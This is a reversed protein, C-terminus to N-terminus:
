IETIRSSHKVFVTFVRLKRLTHSCVVRLTRGDVVCVCVGRADKVGAGVFSVRFRGEGEVQVMEEPPREICGEKQEEMDREEKKKRGRQWVVVLGEESVAIGGWERLMRAKRM